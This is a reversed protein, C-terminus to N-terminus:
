ITRSVNENRRSFIENRRSFIENRWSINNNTRSFIENRRSINENTLSINENRRSIIENKRSFFRTGELFIRTQELFIRTQVLFIRTQELFIRKRVFFIRTQVLFIRTQELFFFFHKKKTKLKVRTPKQLFCVSSSLFYKDRSKFEIQEKKGPLDGQRYIDAYTYDWKAACAYESLASFWANRMQNYFWFHCLILFHFLQYDIITISRGATYNVLIGVSGTVIDQIIWFYKTVRHFLQQTM